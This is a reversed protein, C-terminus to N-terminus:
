MGESDHVWEAIMKVKLAGCGVLKSDEIKTNGCQEMVESQTKYLVVATEGLEHIWTTGCMYFTKELKSGSGKHFLRGWAKLIAM